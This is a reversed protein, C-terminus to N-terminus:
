AWCPRAGTILVPVDAPGAGVFAESTTERECGRRWTGADVLLAPDSKGKWRMRTESTQRGSHLLAAHGCPGHRPSLWRRCFVIPAWRRWESSRRAPCAEWQSRRPSDRTSAARMGGRWPGNQAALKATTGRGIRTNPRHQAVRWTREDWSILAAERPRTEKGKRKGEAALM